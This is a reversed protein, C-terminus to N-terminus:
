SWGALHATLGLAGGGLVVWPVAIGRALGVVAATAVVAAFLDLGAPSWLVATGFAVGLSLIVGVVAATVAALGGTLWRLGRLREVYPAAVLIFFFSPLFTAYSALLAASTASLLPPWDGSHNWGALFGVFQLVIILPGPTTEALAFGDISQAASLWAFHGVAAQNVYALVAYAGGFTVYAARTFFAYVSMLLRHGGALELAIVPLLTLLLWAAVYRVPFRIAEAVRARDDAGQAAAAAGVAPALVGVVLAGLVIWPFPVRFVHIAIFAAAALALLMPGKLSRRGITILALFVIAVVVPKFGDLVASVAPVQGISVYIWSLALLMMAGPLVFGLGAVVAGRAGHMLWGSYIALQMAEPGPLLMCFNLAHAFREEDLWRRREVLERHLLAIQGAPGGFNIWGLLLWFRAAAEFTPADRPM